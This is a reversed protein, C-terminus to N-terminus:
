RSDSTSCVPYNGFPFFASTSPQQNNQAVFIQRNQYAGQGTRSDIASPFFGNRSDQYSPIFRGQAQGYFFNHNPCDVVDWTHNKILSHVEDNIAIRWEAEECNSAVDDFHRPIEDSNNGTFFAYNASMDYEGTRQWFPKLRQRKPYRSVVPTSLPTSFEETSDGSTQNAPTRNRIPTVNVVTSPTIPTTQNVPTSTVLSSNIVPSNPTQTSMLPTECNVVPTIVPSSQHIVPASVVPEEKFPSTVKVTTNATANEDFTVSRGMVVMKRESAVNASLPLLEFNVYYLRGIKKAVFIENGNLIARMKGNEVHFKVGKEDLTGISLLNERADACYHVNSITLEEIERGNVISKVNLSGTKEVKLSEGDKALKIDLPEISKVSRLISIDNILHESCATDCIFRVFKPNNVNHHFKDSNMMLAHGSGGTNSNRKGKFKNSKKSRFKQHNSDVKDNNNSNTGKRSKKCENSKHGYENCNYCRVLSMSYFATTVEDNSEQNTVFKRDKIRCEEELLYGRVKDNTFQTESLTSIATVVGKFEDPLCSLMIVILETDALTGGASKYERAVVDFNRFFNQMSDNMKYELRIMKKFAIVRKTYSSADYVNKLGTWMDYSTPKGKVYELCSNDVCDVIIRRAKLDNTIWAAVLRAAANTVTNVTDWLNQEELLLKVRFSWDPYDDGKFPVIGHKNIGSGGQQDM